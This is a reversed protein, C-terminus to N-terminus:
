PVNGQPLVKTRGNNNIAQTSLEMKISNHAISCFYSKELLGCSAIVAAKCPIATRMTKEMQQPAKAIHRSNTQCKNDKRTLIKTGVFLTTDKCHM